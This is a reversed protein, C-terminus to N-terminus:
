QGGEYAVYVEAVLLLHRQHWDHVGVIVIDNVAPWSSTARTGQVLFRRKIFIDLSTGAVM